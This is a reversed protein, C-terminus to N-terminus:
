KKRTYTFKPGNGNKPVMFLLDDKFSVMFVEVEKDRNYNILHLEPRHANMYWYGSSTTSDLNTRNFNSTWSIVMSVINKPDYSSTIDVDRIIAATLDWNGVISDKPARPMETIKSLTVEVNMGEEMRKWIMKEELFQVNFPGYEDTNNQSVPEFENSNEDYSWTGKDNQTWGNGATYSNDEEYKFWKAVPTLNRDGVKVQDVTWFGIPSQAKASTLLTFILLIFVFQTKM